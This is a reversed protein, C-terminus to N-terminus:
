VTHMAIKVGGGRGPASGRGREGEVGQGRGVEQFAPDLPGM